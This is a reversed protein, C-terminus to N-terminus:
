LANEFSGEKFECATVVLRGAGGKKIPKKILELRCVNRDNGLVNELGDLIPKVANDIDLATEMYIKLHQPASLQTKKANDKITKKFKRYEKTLIFNKNMYKANVSVLKINELDLIVVENNSM